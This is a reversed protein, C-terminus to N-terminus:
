CVITENIVVEGVFQVEISKSEADVKIQEILQRVLSNNYEGMSIPQNEIVEFLKRLRVTNSHSLENRRVTDKQLRRLANLEDSMSRIQNDLEEEDMLQEATQEVLGIMRNEIEQIREIISNENTTPNETYIATELSKKLVSVLEAQDAAIVGIARLIAKHLIKEDITISNPCAEVGSELRSVCRWVVRKKGGRAWTCRRYHAGCDGCVLLETLAYKSSFKGKNETGGASRNKKIESRREIEMQVRGWMDRDIIAPHHDTVYYQPLEGNNKEVRHEICDVVYTKQLLADGVYKENRLMRAITGASWEKKGQATPIADSELAKKIGVYSYGALYMRFIRHVVEAEEPVVEPKGDTGKRYGLFSNYNFTAKGDQFAKRKGWKVNKSISESEAQAFSGLMTILMESAADMTNINEKEFIIPINLAKLKRIYGVCDLINRSFRSISKTLILDIKGKECLEMLRMFEPRKKAQTGTIGEDAYIGALTWEPNSSIKQTYYSIQAYYSTLQEEQDTSVRCYAAVRLKKMKVSCIDNKRNAPIRTVTPM